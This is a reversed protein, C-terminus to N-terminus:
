LSDGKFDRIVQKVTPWTDVSSRLINVEQCGNYGWVGVYDLNADLALKLQKEVHTGNTRFGKVWAGRKYDSGYFSNQLFDIATADEYIDVFIGSPQSLVCLPGLNLNSYVSQPKIWDRSWVRDLIAFVDNCCTNRPEDWHIHDAPQAAYLWQEMTERAQCSRPCVNKHQTLGEGGFVGLVGWPSIWAELDNKHAINVLQEYRYTHYIAHEETMPLNVIDFGSAKIDAFDAEADRQSISFYSTLLKVM